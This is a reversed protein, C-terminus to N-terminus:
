EPQITGTGPEGEPAPEETTKSSHLLGKIEELAAIQEQFDAQEGADIKAQLDDIVKQLAAENADDQAEDDIIAQKLEAIKANLQDLNPMTGRKLAFAADIIAGLAEDASIRANKIHLEVEELLAFM